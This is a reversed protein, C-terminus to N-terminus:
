RRLRQKLHTIRRTQNNATPNNARMPSWLLSIPLVSFEAVHSALVASKHRTLVGELMAPDARIFMSHIAGSGSAGLMTGEAPSLFDVESHMVEYRCSLEHHVDAYGAHTFDLLIVASASDFVAWKHLLARLDGHSWGSDRLASVSRDITSGNTEVAREVPHGFFLGLAADVAGCALLGGPAFRVLLDARGALYDDARLGVSAEGDSNTLLESREIWDVQHAKEFFDSASESRPLPTLQLKRDGANRSDTLDIDVPSMGAMQELALFHVLVDM